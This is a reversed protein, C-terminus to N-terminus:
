KGRGIIKVLMYRAGHSIFKPCNERKKLPEPHTQPVPTKIPRGKKM